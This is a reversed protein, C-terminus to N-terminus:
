TSRGELSLKESVAVFGECQGGKVDVFCDHGESLGFGSEHGRGAESDKSRGLVLRFDARLHSQRPYRSYANELRSIATSKSTTGSWSCPRREREGPIYHGCNIACDLQSSASSCFSFSSSPNAM